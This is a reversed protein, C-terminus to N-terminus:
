AVSAENPFPNSCGATASDVQTSPYLTSPFAPPGGQGAPVPPVLLRPLPKPATGAPATWRSGTWYAHGPATSASGVLRAFKGHAPQDPSATVPTPRPKHMATRLAQYAPATLAVPPAGHAPIGAQAGGVSVTGGSGIPRAPINMITGPGPPKGHSSAARALSGSSVLAALTMIVPIIILRRM